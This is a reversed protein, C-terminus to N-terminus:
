TVVLTLRRQESPAAEWERGHHLVVSWTGEREARLEVLHLGGAGPAGGAPPVTRDAQVSVGEGAEAVSWVYGTTANEPLRVRVTDGVAVQVPEDAGGWEVDM